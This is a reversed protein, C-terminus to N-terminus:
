RAPQGNPDKGKCVAKEASEGLAQATFGLAISQRLLDGASHHTKLDLPLVLPLRPAAANVRGSVAENERQEPEPDSVQQQAEREDERLRWERRSM